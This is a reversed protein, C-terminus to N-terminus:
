LLGLRRNLEDRTAMLIKGLLNQGKGDVTGWTTDGWTNGEELYLKGTSLLKIELDENQTFKALVIDKMVQVKVSEWDPRLSLNRGERKAKGPTYSCFEARRDMDLTKQAQFAAESNLYTLGNYTVPADYFNSLFAFEGDFKDIKEM